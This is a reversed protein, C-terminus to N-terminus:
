ESVGSHQFKKLEREHAERVCREVVASKGRAGYREVLWELKEVAKASISITQRVFGGELRTANRPPLPRV